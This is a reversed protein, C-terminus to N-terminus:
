YKANQILCENVYALAESTKMIIVCISIQYMICKRQLVILSNIVVHEHPFVKQTDVDPELLLLDGELVEPVWGVSASSESEQFHSQAQWPKEKDGNPSRCSPSAPSTWLLSPPEL